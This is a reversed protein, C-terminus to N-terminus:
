TEGCKGRVSLSFWSVDITCPCPKLIRGLLLAPMLCMLSAKVHFHTRFSTKVKNCITISINANYRWQLPSMFCLLLLFIHADSHVTGFFLLFLYSFSRWHDICLSVHVGINMAASNIIALVHFCGLHGDASSHILFSHYM